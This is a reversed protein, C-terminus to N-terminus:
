AGPDTSAAGPENRMLSLLAELDALFLSKEVPSASAPPLTRYSELIAWTEAVRKREPELGAVYIDLDGKQEEITCDLWAAFAEEHSQKMAKNAEEEGFVAALGHHQYQATNPDRLSALYVLRGFRSPIQSLTHQWLDTAAGQARFRSKPGTPPQM